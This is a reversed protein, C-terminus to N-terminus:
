ILSYYKHYESPRIDKEENINFLLKNDKWNLTVEKSYYRNINIDHIREVYTIVDGHYEVLDSNSLIAQEANELIKEVPIIRGYYGIDFNCLFYKNKAKHYRVIFLDEGDCLIRTALDKKQEKNERITYFGKQM